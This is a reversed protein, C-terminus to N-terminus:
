LLVFVLLLGCLALKSENDKRARKTCLLPFFPCVFFDNEWFFFITIGTGKKANLFDFILRESLKELFVPWKECLNM